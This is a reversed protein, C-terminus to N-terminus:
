GMVNFLARDFHFNFDEIVLDAASLANKNGSTSVAICSMGANKAARVGPPSDEIVLCREPHYGVDRSTKLFIDPEPKAPLAAGSILADFYAHLGFGELTTKINEMPASSAILQPFQYTKAAELWSRVGPVLSGDEVVQERFLSEKEELIKEALERDPEFGLYAKIAAQNNRGFNEEFAARSFPYGHQEFVRKWSHYHCEKSDIITGDLDWFIAIKRNQM